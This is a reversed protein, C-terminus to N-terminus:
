GEKPREAIPPVPNLSINFPGRGTTTYSEHQRLGRLSEAIDSLNWLLLVKSEWEYVKNLGDSNQWDGKFIEKDLYKLRGLTDAPGM